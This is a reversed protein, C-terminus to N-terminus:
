NYWFLLTTAITKDSGEQKKLILDITQCGLM